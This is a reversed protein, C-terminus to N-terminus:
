GTQEEASGDCAEELDRLLERLKEAVEKRIPVAEEQSIFCISAIARALTFLRIHGELKAAHALAYAQECARNRYREDWFFELLDELSRRLVRLAAPLYDIFGPREADRSTADEPLSVM